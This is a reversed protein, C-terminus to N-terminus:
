PQNLSSVANGSECVVASADLYATRGLKCSQKSDLEVSLNARAKYQMPDNSRRPIRSLSVVGSSRSDHLFQIQACCDRVSERKLSGIELLQDKLRFIHSQTEVLDM